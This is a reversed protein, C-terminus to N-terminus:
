RWERATMSSPTPPSATSVDTAAPPSSRPGLWIPACSVMASTGSSPATADSVTMSGGLQLAVNDMTYLLSHGTGDSCFCARWKKTGGFNRAAILGEKEASEEVIDGSPLRKPGPVVRSWPVGWHAMQRIAVPALNVFLRAVDQECGWDAGKVTDEFHVDPSDGASRAMNGLAAQMGGQAAVSHSRRPPVLSLMIVQLGHAAAEVATREGALGAGIVLVDTMITTM